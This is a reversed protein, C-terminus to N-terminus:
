GVGEPPEPAPAPTGGPAEAERAKELEKVLTEVHTTEVMEKLEPDQSAAQGVGLADHIRQLMQLAKTMEQESLLGIQLDVHAWQDAQRNQRNQSMLLFTSLFIAELGVLLGLFQFPYPDFREEEPLLISNLLLWAVFLFVHAIIFHLSGVFRTISDSAIDLTTRQREFEQELEAISQINKKIAESVKPRPKFFWYRM